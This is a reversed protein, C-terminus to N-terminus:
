QRSAPPSSFCSAASNSCLMRTVLESQFLKNQRTSFWCKRNEKYNKIVKLVSRSIRLCVSNELGLRKHTTAFAVTELAFANCDWSHLFLFPVKFVAHLLGRQESVVKDASISVYGNCNDSRIVLPISIQIQKCPKVQLYWLNKHHSRSWKEKPATLPYLNQKIRRKHEVAEFARPESKLQPNLFTLNTAGIPVLSIHLYM